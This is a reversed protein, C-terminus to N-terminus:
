IQFANEEEDGEWDEETNNRYENSKGGSQSSHRHHDNPHHQQHAFPLLLISLVASSAFLVHVSNVECKCNSRNKDNCTNTHRKGGARNRRNGTVRGQTNTKEHAGPQLHQADVYNLNHLAISREGQQRRVM